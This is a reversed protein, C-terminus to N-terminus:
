LEVLIMLRVSFELRYFHGLIVELAAHHDEIIKEALFNYRFVEKNDLIVEIGVVM